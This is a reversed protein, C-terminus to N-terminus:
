ESFNLKEVQHEYAHYMKVAKFVIISICAIISILLFVASIGTVLHLFNKRFLYLAIAVFIVIIVPWFTSTTKKTAAPQLQQLVAAALDFDFAVAPQEKISAFVLKYVAMQERCSTCNEIHQMMGTEPVQGDSAFIQLEEDSLHRTM